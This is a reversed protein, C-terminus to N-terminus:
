SKLLCWRLHRYLSLQCWCRDPSLYRFCTYLFNTHGQLRQHWQLCSYCMIGGSLAQEKKRNSPSTKSGQDSLWTQHVTVCNHPNKWYVGQILSTLIVFYHQLKHHKSITAFNYVWKPGLTNYHLPCPQAVSCTLSMTFPFLVLLPAWLIKLPKCLVYQRSKEQLM